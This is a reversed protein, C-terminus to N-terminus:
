HDDPQSRAALTDRIGGRAGDINRVCQWALNGLDLRPGPMGVAAM